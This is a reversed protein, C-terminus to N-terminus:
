KKDIMDILETVVRGLEAKKEQADAMDAFYAMRRGDSYNGELLGSVVEVVLPNHFVLHVREKAWLNFTTLYEGHYSFSPAKWKVQETIEPHVGKLYERLMEVEAKFPHDLQAMFEDVEASRNVNNKVKGVFEELGVVDVTRAM